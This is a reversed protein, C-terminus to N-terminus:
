CYITKKRPSYPTFVRDSKEVKEVEETPEEDMAEEETLEEEIPEEGVVDEVRDFPNDTYEERLRVTDMEGDPTATDLEVTPDTEEEPGLVDRLAPIETATDSEPGPDHILTDKGLRHQLDFPNQAVISAPIVLLLVFIYKFWCGRMQNQLLLRYQDAHCHM